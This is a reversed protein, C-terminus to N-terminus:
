TWAGKIRTKAEETRLRRKEAEHSAADVTIHIFNGKGFFCSRRCCATQDYFLKNRVVISLNRVFNLM